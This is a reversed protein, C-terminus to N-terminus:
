VGFGHASQQKDFERLDRLTNEDVLPIERAVGMKDTEARIFIYPDPVNLHCDKVLLEALAGRRALTCFAVRYLVSRNFAPVGRLTEGHASVYACLANCEEWSVARRIKRRDSEVKYPHGLFPVEGLVGKRVLFKFFTYLGNLIQNLSAHSYVSRKTRYNLVRIADEKLIRKPNDGKAPKKISLKELLRCLVGSSMGTIIRIDKLTVFDGKPLEYNVDRVIWSDLLNRVADKIDDCKRIDESSIWKLSECVKEVYLRKTEITHAKFGFGEREKVWGEIFQKLPKDAIRKELGQTIREEKELIKRLMDEANKKNKCLPITNIHDGQKVKAYWTQSKEVMKNKNTKSLPFEIYKGKRKIRVKNGDIYEANQPVDYVLTKKFM